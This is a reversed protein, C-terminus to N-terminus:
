PARALAWAEIRAAGAARAARALEELTSGTTMVDDLLAVHLGRLDRTFAFAGKLNRRRDVARQGIQDSTARLCHAAAPDVAIGLRRHLARALEVAQNYGRRYLRRRHLPVPVLLAPLPEDRAALGEAMLEGLLRAQDFRAQYKIGAIGRQVPPLHVFASWASDFARPRKLCARCRVSAAQPLACGPCQLANWPLEDRCPACIGEPGADGCVTCRPPALLKLADDVLSRPNM